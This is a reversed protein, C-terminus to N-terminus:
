DALHKSINYTNNETHKKPWILNGDADRSPLPIRADKMFDFNVICSSEDDVRCFGIGATVTFVTEILKIEVRLMIKLGGAIPLVIGTDMNQKIGFHFDMEEPDLRAFVKVTRLFILIKVNICCEVGMCMSDFTCYVNSPILASLLPCQNGNTLLRKIMQDRSGDTQMGRELLEEEIEDDTAQSPNFCPKNDILKKVTKMVAALKQMSENMKLKGLFDIISGMRLKKLSFKQLFSDAKKLLVSFPDKFNLNISGMNGPNLKGFMGDRKIQDLDAGPPDEALDPMDETEPEPNVLQESTDKITRGSEGIISGTDITEGMFKLMYDDCTQHWPQLKIGRKQLFGTPDISGGNKRFIVTIHNDCSSRIATGIPEGAAVQKNIYLDDNPHLIGSNPKVNKIIVEIDKLFGGSTQIIVENANNSRMILGPFPAVVFFLNCHFDYCELFIRRKQKKWNQLLKKFPKDAYILIAEGERLISYAEKVSKVLSFFHKYMDFFPAAFGTLGQLASMLDDVTTQIDEVINKRVDRLSLKGKTFQNITDEAEGINEEVWAKSKAKATNMVKVSLDVIEVIETLELWYPKADKLFSCAEQTKHKAEILNKVSAFIQLVGKGIRAISQMPDKIFSKFGNIIDGLSKFIIRANEPITITVTEFLQNFFVLVDSKLRNLFTQVRSVLNEVPKMFPPLDKPDYEGFKKMAKMAVSRLDAVKKPLQTLSNVFKLVLDKLNVKGEILDKIKKIGTNIGGLITPLIKDFRTAVNSMTKLENEQLININYSTEGKFCIRAKIVDINVGVVGLHLIAYAEDHISVSLSGSLPAISLALYNSMTFGFSGGLSKSGLEDRWDVSPAALKFDLGKFFSRKQRNHPGFSQDGQVVSKNDAVEVVSFRNYHKYESKPHAQYLLKAEYRVEENDDYMAAKLIAQAAMKSEYKRLAHVGARKIWPSNTSNIHSIIYDYSHDIAANGLTELLIVHKIDYEVQEVETQISRKQRYMWPDHIRLLNNVKSTIGKAKEQEGSSFLKGAASGLALMVRNYLNGTYFSVPYKEPHFCIDEMTELIIPHPPRDASVVHIMYKVILDPDPNPSQFIMRGIIEQGSELTGYADLMIVTSLRNENLKLNLKIFYYEAVETLAKDPLIKLINLIKLFCENVMPSGGAPENKICIINDNIEQKKEHVDVKPKKLQYKDVHISSTLVNEIPRLLANGVPQRTLFHLEGKSLVTMEPFKTKDSFQNVPKVKRMNKYPDFEINDTLATFNDEILVKHVIGLEKHYLLTKEFYGKSNKINHCDKIKKFETGNATEKVMYKASHAGENGVEETQYKWQGSGIHVVGSSLEDKDHLKASLLAALGKKTALVEDDEPPHYVRLIQGNPKIQFSFRQKPYIFNFTLKRVLMHSIMSTAM